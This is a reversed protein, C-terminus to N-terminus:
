KPHYENKENARIKDSVLDYIHMLLSRDLLTVSFTNKSQKLYLRIAFPKRSNPLRIIREIQDYHIVTNKAANIEVRDNFIVLYPDLRNRAMEIPGLGKIGTIIEMVDIHIGEEPIGTDFVKLTQSIRNM